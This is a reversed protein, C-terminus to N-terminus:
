RRRRRGSEGTAFFIAGALMSYVISTVFASIYGPFHLGPVRNGVLYFVLGHLLVSALGFTLCKFPCTVISILPRAAINVISLVIVFLMPGWFSDVEILFAAPKVTGAIALSQVLANVIFISLWMAITGAIWRVIM